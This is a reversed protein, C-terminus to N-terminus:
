ILIKKNGHMGIWKREDFIGAMVFKHAYLLFRIKVCPVSNCLYM